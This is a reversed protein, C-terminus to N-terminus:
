DWISVFGEYSRVQADCTVLALGESRAQAVLLRDFPDRHLMPLAALGDTHALRIPLPEFGEEAVADAVTGDFVLRGLARKVAIEWGVVASVHVQTSPDLLLDRVRKSLEPADLRWWLFAHTDLLIRL